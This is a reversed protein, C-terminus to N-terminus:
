LKCSLAGNSDHAAARADALLHSSLKGSEVVGLYEDDVAPFIQELPHLRLKFGQLTLRAESLAVQGGVLFYVLSQLEDLVGEGFDIEKDVVGADDDGLPSLPSGPKFDKLESFLSGTLLSFPALVRPSSVDADNRRHKGDSCSAHVNCAISSRLSSDEVVHGAEPLLIFFVPFIDGDGDSTWACDVRAHEV